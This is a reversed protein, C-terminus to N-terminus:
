GLEMVRKVMVRETSTHSYSQRDSITMISARQRKSALRVTGRMNLCSLEPSSIM